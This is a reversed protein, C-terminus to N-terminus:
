GGACCSLQSVDQFFTQACLKIGESMTLYPFLQEAIEKVTMQKKIALATTQIIEGAEAALIQAGILCKTKQEAVLQIFGRSDFNALARPVNDITLLRTEVSMGQQKAEDETMGVSAVQPETFTVAPMTSLDLSANGGLMSIAAQTGATAAVYVFQPLDTCDGAAYITNNTTRMRDDIQIAGRSTTSVNANELNLNQTNPIRGTAVLLQDGKITRENLHIYFQQQDYHIKKIQTRTLINMGEEKLYQELFVGIQSDEKPLLPGIDVVTVKAGERLFAQGLELGVSSGGLVILHRPIGQNILAEISTWYPTNNLGPIPPIFPPHAQLLLRM